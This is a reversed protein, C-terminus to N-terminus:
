EGITFHALSRAHSGYQEIRSRYCSTSMWQNVCVTHTLKFQYHAHITSIYGLKTHLQFNCLKKELMYWTFFTGFQSSIINTGREVQFMTRILNQQTCQKNQFTTM